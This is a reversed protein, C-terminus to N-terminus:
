FMYNYSYDQSLSNGLIPLSYPVYVKLVYVKEAAMRWRNTGPVFRTQGLSLSPKWQTSYPSFRPKDRPCGPNMGPVFQTQGLSLGPTTGLAVPGFLKHKHAKKKGSLVFITAHMKMVLTLTRSIESLGRLDNLISPQQPGEKEAAASEDPPGRDRNSSVGDRTGIASRIIAASAEFHRM